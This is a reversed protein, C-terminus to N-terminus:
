FQTHTDCKGNQVPERGVGGRIPKIMEIQQWAIYPWVPLWSSNNNIDRAIKSALDAHLTLWLDAIPWYIGKSCRSSGHFAQNASNCSSWPSLSGVQMNSQSLKIPTKVRSIFFELSPNISLSAFQSTEMYWGIDDSSGIMGQEEEGLLTDLAFRLLLKGACYLDFNLPCLACPLHANITTKCWMKERKWNVAHDNRIISYILNRGGDLPMSWPLKFHIWTEFTSLNSDQSSRGGELWVVM